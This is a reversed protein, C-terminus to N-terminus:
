RDTQGDMQKDAWEDTTLLVHNKHDQEFYKGVFSKLGFIFWKRQGIKQEFYHGDMEKHINIWKRRGRKTSQNM